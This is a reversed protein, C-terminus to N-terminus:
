AGARDAPKGPNRARLRYQTVDDFAQTPLRQQRGYKLYHQLPSIGDKILSAHKRAYWKADFDHSPQYGNPVGYLQYHALPNRGSVAADTHAAVYWGTSFVPNPNRGDEAGHRLFHELPGRKYGEADPYEALYWEGDFLGSALIIARDEDVLAAAHRRENVWRGLRFTITAYLIDLVRGITAGAQPFQRGLARVMSGYRYVTTNQVRRLALAYEKREREAHEWKVVIDRLSLDQLAILERADALSERASKAAATATANGSATASPKKRGAKQAPRDGSGAITGKNV